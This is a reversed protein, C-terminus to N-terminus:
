MMNFTDSIEVVFPYVADLTLAPTKYARIMKMLPLQFSLPMRIVSKEANGPIEGYGTVTYYETDGYIGEPLFGDMLSVALAHLDSYPTAPGVPMFGATGTFAEYRDHDIDCTRSHGIDGIVAKVIKGDFGRTVLINDPKLDGHMFCKVHAHMYVLGRMIDRAVVQLEGVTGITSANGDFLPMVIRMDDYAIVSVVNPHHLRILNSVEEILSEDKLKMVKVAVPTGYYFAKHVKGFSGEGLIDDEGGTWGLLNDNDITYVSMDKVSPTTPGRIGNSSVRTSKSSAGSMDCINFTYMNISMVVVIFICVNM